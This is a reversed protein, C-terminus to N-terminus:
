QSRFSDVMFYCLIQDYPVQYVILKTFCLYSWIRNGKTPIVVRNERKGVM